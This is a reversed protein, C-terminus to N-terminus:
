RGGVRASRMVLDSSQLIKARLRPPYDAPPTDVFCTAAAEVRPSSHGRLVAGVGNADFFRASSAM